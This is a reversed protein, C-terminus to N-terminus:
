PAYDALDCLDRYLDALADPLPHRPESRRLSPDPFSRDASAGTFAELRDIGDGTLVQDYHLFLWKGGDRRHTDLIHRYMLRQIEMAEEVDVALGHLHRRVEKVISAATASPHRFVCVFVTNSLFPRWVPLTYCFRPDKYCFPTQRTFGAIRDLVRPPPSPISSGPPVHALWRESPGRRPGIGPLRMVWRNMFWYRKPVLPALIANNVDNVGADEQYGKPNSDRPPHLNAGMHYGTEALTGAVM